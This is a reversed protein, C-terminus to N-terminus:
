PSGYRLWQEVGPHGRPREMGATLHETTNHELGTAPRAGPTLASEAVVVSTSGSLGTSRPAM